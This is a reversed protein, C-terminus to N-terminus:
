RWFICHIVLIVFQQFYVNRIDLNTQLISDAILHVIQISCLNYQLTHVIPEFVDFFLFCDHSACFQIHLLILQFALHIFFDRRQPHIFWGPSATIYWGKLGLCSFCPKEFMWVDNSFAFCLDWFALLLGPFFPTVTVKNTFSINSISNEYM